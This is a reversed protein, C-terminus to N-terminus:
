DTAANLQTLVAARRPDDKPLAEAVALARERATSAAEDEGLVTYARILRMWGEIDSPEEELRAALGEVMSRIFADRDGQSMEEAAAVDAASPGRGGDLM